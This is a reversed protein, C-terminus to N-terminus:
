NIKKESIFTWIPSQWDGIGEQFEQMSKKAYQRIIKRWFAKATLNKNLTRVEWKGPFKDFVHFALKKGIGQNRYKKLVFFEAITWEVNETYGFKNILVFGALKDNVRVIFPYRESEVWYFDLYRYGYEGFENLDKDEFQTCDYAYLELMKKLFHKESYRALQINVNMNINM